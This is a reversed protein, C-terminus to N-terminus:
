DADGELAELKEKLKKNSINGPVNEGADKLKEMAADRDFDDSENGKRNKKREPDFKADVIKYGQKRLKEKEEPTVPHEVYKIKDTM